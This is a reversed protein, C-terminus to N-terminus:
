SVTARERLSSRTQEDLPVHVVFTERSLHGAALAAFLFHLPKPGHRIEVRFPSFTRVSYRSWAERFRADHKLADVLETLEANDPDDAYNFRVIAAVSEMMADPEAHLARLAPDRVLRWLINQALERSPTFGYVDRAHQNSAVVSWKRDVVFAPSDRFGDVLTALVDDSLEASPRVGDGRPGASLTLLYSTEDANLQLARAISRLTSPSAQVDRGMELWSYWTLSVGARAAVEERTLGAVRRKPRARREAESPSLRSRRERLFRAAELSRRRTDHIM